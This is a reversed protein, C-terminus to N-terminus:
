FISSAVIFCPLPIIIRSMAITIPSMSYPILIKATLGATADEDDDRGGNGVDNKLLYSLAILALAESQLTLQMWLCLHYL